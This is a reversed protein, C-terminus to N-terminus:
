SCTSRRCPAYSQRYAQLAEDYHGLAAQGDGRRTWEDARAQTPAPDRSALAQARARTSALAVMVALAGALAAHHKM